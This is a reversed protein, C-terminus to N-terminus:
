LGPAIRVLKGSSTNPEGLLTIYLAGDPGFAMATPRALPAVLQAKLEQSNDGRTAVLQYLGGKAADLWAFDVAYLQERPSYALGTTDYLGTKFNALLAGTRASYFSLLGDGAVDIQGGQGVVIEGHPGITIGLPANVQVAPKTAIQRAFDEVKTGNIRAKAIWGQADDGHCTVYIGHKAVAVGHFNGEGPLDDKAALAFRFKAKDLTLAPDGPKPLAFVLLEDKGDARGGDGVVLAEEFFALGLPGINIAPEKGYVDKEFGVIVEQPKGQVIRVIRQAGSEAVYVHGTGPQVAVGCPNNLGECVTVVKTQALAPSVLGALAIITWAWRSM